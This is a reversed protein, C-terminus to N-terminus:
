DEIWFAGTEPEGGAHSKVKIRSSADQPSPRICQSFEPGGRLSTCYVRVPFLRGAAMLLGVPSM